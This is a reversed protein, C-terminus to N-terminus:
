AKRKQWPELRWLNVLTQRDLPGGAGSPAVVIGRELQGPPAMSSGFQKRSRSIPQVVAPIPDLTREGQITIQGVSLHLSFTTGDKRRGQVERGIGIIKARGTALYRCLYTDHEEHYPSPMLLDVNHGIVEQAPYGFLREAAPNFAEVRGHADIVVIGDVASDIVARWRAESAQLQEDLRARKGIRMEGVSLHVPFLTGDRRRGTVERGIGIIKTLDHLM